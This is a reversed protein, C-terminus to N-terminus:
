RKRHILENILAKLFWINYPLSDLLENAETSLRTVMKKSTEMGILEPYTLKQQKADKGVSKGTVGSEGEIDLIDDRVQFAHGVKIAIKRLKDIEDKPANGIYAGSLFAAELMAGTKNKHIFDLTLLNANDVDNKDSMMDAVQGVIMGNIGAKYSIERAANVMSHSYNFRIITDFLIRHAFNLFADGALIADAVSFKVHSTPQGRRIDDNDMAPLDDHILSYTHIMEIACAFPMVKNDVVEYFSAVELMIIPRLRKGKSLLSYAM